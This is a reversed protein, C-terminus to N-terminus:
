RGEPDGDLEYRRSQSASEFRVIDGRRLGMTSVAAALVPPPIEAADVRERADFGTVVLEAACAPCAGGALDAGRAVGFHSAERGCGPCTLNMFVRRGEVSMAIPVDEGLALRALDLLDGLRLEDPSGLVREVTWPGHEFLRCGSQRRFRTEHWAHHLADVLVQRGSRDPAGAFVAECEIVMLAAALAALSAPANSSAVSVRGGACPYTQELLAYDHEDWACEMCPEHPGPAYVAVRALASGGPLVGLGADIWPMGLALARENITQRARRSDVCALMVDGRLLAPAVNEVRDAIAVVQTGLLRALLRRAQVEVKVHGIDSPTIDQGALNRAEYVEPDILTIREIDRLRGLLPVVHSGVAGGAGVVTIRRAPTM